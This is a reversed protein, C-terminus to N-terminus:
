KKLKFKSVLTQLHEAMNNLNQASTAITDISASQQETTAAMEHSGFNIEGIGSSLQDIQAIISNSADVIEQMLDDTANVIETNKEAQKVGQHIVTVTRSTEEQINQILDTIRTTSAASQEALKRVEDAVVAFGRGHEGARAAEIAANLALLNTQEAISTIVEVIESIERSQHGLNEVTQAMGQIVDKLEITSAIAERVGASGKSTATLIENASRVMIQANENMQTVTAAFQNSTSAVEEISASTEETSASLEQSTGAIELAAQTVEELVDSIATQTHVVAKAIDGFEDGRNLFDAPVEYTFDGDAMFALQTQNASLSGIIGMSIKLLIGGLLLFAAGGIIVTVLLTMRIGTYVDEMSVGVKFVGAHEGDIELPVSIDFAVVDEPEYYYETTYLEGSAAAAESGEDRLISGIQSKDSHAWVDRDPGVYAVYVIEDSASLEEVLMQIDFQMQLDWVAEARVGVQVIEGQPGRVHAYKFHEDSDTELRVDEVFFSEGSAAFQAVPHDAPATWGLFKGFASATVTLDRDYWYISDVGMDVALRTLYEDSISERNTIVTRGAGLLVTELSLDIVQLAAYNDQIRSVVQNALGLGFNQMGQIMNTRTFGFTILGLAVIALSLLLLPVVILKFRITNLRSLFRRDKSM